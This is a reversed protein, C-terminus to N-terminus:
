ALKNALEKLMEANKVGTQAVMQSFQSSEDALLVRPSDYEVVLGADMVLARDYDIITNLRHAITLITADAFDERLAKQILSDTEFDVNATAEDMILIKPKKVMARALCVLQRQGVSLNEGGDDVSADLGKESEGVKGKMGSRAVADWLAADTYENFPDLNSRYTGTFLIPDQPIIALGSRLEALGIKSVDIGDITITGRTPEVMRFLSQLLSSKGSGTRGVVGIKQKDEIRFTVGKLILPLHAAYRMELRSVEITGSSPWNKPPLLDAGENPEVEVEEAYFKVREVANMAVEAETFQRICFSLTNTVQLAYSLSLGVAAPSSAGDGGAAMVGAVAAALVLVAGLAELRMSLWKQGMLLYFYPRNNRNLFANTTQIFRSHEHYARITSLGTLTSGFHAYLPSRSISDLRKLERSTSRYLNQVLYYLGLIPVLFALFLPTAAAILIFIALVSASTSFFMRFCDPLTNDINDQDKSFRNMIRGLPTTDFFLTTARIVRKIAAEHLVGAAKTCAVAFYANFMYNCLVQAVALSIYIGIY